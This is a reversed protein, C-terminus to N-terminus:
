ASPAAPSREGESPELVGFQQNAWLMISRGRREVLGPAMRQLHWAVRMRRPSVIVAQDRALGRLVDAAVLEAAVPPGFARTALALGDVAHRPPPLDPAPGATGRALPTAMLGPCAVSVRVGYAAAETRLALSLGVIAHKSTTYPTSLGGAMLGVISSVNCLQGSGQRRLIPYAALVGNITGGLNTELVARWHDPSLDAVEGYVQVGANNVVLDLRGREAAIQECLHAFAAADRVDLSVGRASGPGGQGLEAAVAAAREGDRAALVVEDGREVLAAGLARGLGSSGGTVIAIRSV